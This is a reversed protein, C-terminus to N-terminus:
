RCWCTRWSTLRTSQSQLATIVDGDVNLNCYVCIDAYFFPTSKLRREQAYWQHSAGDWRIWNNTCLALKQHIHTISCTVQVGSFAAQCMYCLNAHWNAVDSHIVLLALMPVMDDASIVVMGEEGNEGRNKALECMKKFANDLCVVKEMPTTKKNIESALVAAETVGRNLVVPLGLEVATVDQLNRTRRNLSEDDASLLSASAESFYSFVGNVVFGGMAVKLMDMYGTCSKAHKRHSSDRLMVQMAITFLDRTAYVLDSVSHPSSTAREFSSILGDVRKKAKKNGSGPESWLFDVCDSLTKLSVSVDTTVVADGALPSDICVIKYSEEADNYYRGFATHTYLTSHLVTCHLTTYHLSM